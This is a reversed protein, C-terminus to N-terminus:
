SIGSREASCAGAMEPETLNGELAAAAFTRSQCNWLSAEPWPASSIERHSIVRQAHALHCADHYTVPHAYAYAIPSLRNTQTLWETLDKM